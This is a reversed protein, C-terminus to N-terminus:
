NGNTVGENLIIPLSKSSNQNACSFWNRYNFTNIQYGFLLKTLWHGVPEYYYSEFYRNDNNPEQAFSSSRVFGFPLPKYENTSILGYILCVQLNTDNKQKCDYYSTYRDKPTMINKPKIYVKDLDERYSMPGAVVYSAPPAPYVRARDAKCMGHEIWFFYYVPDFFMLTFIGIWIGRRLYKHWPKSDLFQKMLKRIIIFLIIYGILSIIVPIILVDMEQEPLMWGFVSFDQSM